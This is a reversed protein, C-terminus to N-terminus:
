GHRYLTVFSMDARNLADAPRHARSIEEWKGPMVPFYTDGPIRAHVVTLHLCTVLPLYAEYVQAGGIVMVEPVPGAAELAEEPSRCIQCGPAQYGEDRSLVINQRKPLPRGIGQHVKRGMIVPKGLTLRRFHQLDAPLSWPLLNDRGIVREDETMAVVFTIVPKM